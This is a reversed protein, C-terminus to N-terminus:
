CEDAVSKDENDNSSELKSKFEEVTREIIHKVTALAKMSDRTNTVELDGQLHRELASFTTALSPRLDRHLKEEEV